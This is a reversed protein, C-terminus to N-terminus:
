VPTPCGLVHAGQICVPPKSAQQLSEGDLKGVRTDAIASICCSTVESKSSFRLSTVRTAHYYPHHGPPHAYALLYAESARSNFALVVRHPHGPVPQFVASRSLPSSNFCVALAVIALPLIHSDQYPSCPYFPGRGQFTLPNRLHSDTTTCANASQTRSMKASIMPTGSSPVALHSLRLNM